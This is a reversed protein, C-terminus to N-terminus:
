IIGEAKMRALDADSRGLIGKYVDENHAGLEPGPWHIEGPTESFKPFANQMWINQFSQHDVKVVADRAKFHPDELMDPAKFIKGAPVGNEEILDLLEKSTFGRSWASILDDLEQQNEGRAHHSSYRPDTALEPRGMAEAM